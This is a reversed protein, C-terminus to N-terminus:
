ASTYADLGSTMTAIGAHDIAYAEFGPLSELFPLAAAGMAFAATAFRDAEYINPGIVTLSAYTSPAAEPVHPDYIHSGREYTGSTAIGAGRPYLVKVIEDRVFPNRIGISWEMGEANVGQTQIDGAIEIYFNEYGAERLMSAANGIAWGKVLGSPDISGSPTAIDFYGGTRNKTDEARAFVEQMEESYSGEEIENRNIRSIESEDKYTSFREDIGKLYEFVKEYQEFPVAPEAIELRVPMGMIIRQQMM